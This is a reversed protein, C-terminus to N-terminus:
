AKTDPTESPSRNMAPITGPMRTPMEKIIQEKTMATRRPYGVSDRRLKPSTTRLKRTHRGASNAGTMMRPDMKVPITVGVSAATMATTYAM